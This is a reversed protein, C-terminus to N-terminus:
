YVIFAVWCFGVKRPLIPLVAVLQSPIQFISLGYVLFVMKMLIEFIRTSKM